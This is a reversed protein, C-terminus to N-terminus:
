YIVSITSFGLRRLIIEPFNLLYHKIHVYQM